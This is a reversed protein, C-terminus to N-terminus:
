DIFSVALEANNVIIRVRVTFPFLFPFGVVCTSFCSTPLLLDFILQVRSRQDDWLAFIQFIKQPLIHIQIAFIFPRKGRIPAIYGNYIMIDEREYSIHLQLIHIRAEEFLIVPLQLICFRNHVGHNSFGPILKHPAASDTVDMLQQPATKFLSNFPFQHLLIRGDM